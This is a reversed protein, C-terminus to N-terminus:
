LTCGIHLERKASVYASAAEEPSDFYGLKKTKGNVGISAQYRRGVKVVGLMGTKSENTASRRNQVNVARRVDRLNVWRNDAKQGNIHDVDFEPWSGTMFVFAVRHALLLRGRFCIVRYGLTNITGADRSLQRGRAAVTWRFAGTDPCYSLERKIAEIDVKM